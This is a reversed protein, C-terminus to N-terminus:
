CYCQFWQTNLSYYPLCYRKQSLFTYNVGICERSLIYIYIDSDISSLSFFKIYKWKWVGKVLNKVLLYQSFFERVTFSPSIYQWFCSIPEYIPFLPYHYISMKKKSFTFLSTRLSWHHYLKQEVNEYDIFPFPRQVKM